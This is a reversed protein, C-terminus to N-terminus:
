IRFHIRFKIHLNLFIGVDCIKRAKVVYNLLMCLCKYFLKHWIHVVKWICTKSLVSSSCNATAKADISEVTKLRDFYKRIAHRYKVCNTKGKNASQVLRDVFKYRVISLKYTYVYM